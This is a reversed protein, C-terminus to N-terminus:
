RNNQKRKKNSTNTYLQDWCRMAEQGLLCVEDGGVVVVWVPKQGGGVSSTLWKSDRRIAPDM